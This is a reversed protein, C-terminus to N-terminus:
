RSLQTIVTRLDGTLTAVSHPPSFVATMRAQPDLLFLTASHDVTYAGNGSDHIAFPVGLAHTLQEIQQPAGTLGIFDPSFFKVYRGVQAPADRQPDVSLFVIQLRQEVPLDALQQDVQALTSLTTPCVDPCSTYGFFLLSWHGNLRARNYAQGNGDVLQFDPVPRPTPLVTGSGITLNPQSPARMFQASLAGILIAVIVIGLYLPARSKPM